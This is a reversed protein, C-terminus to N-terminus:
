GSGKMIITPNFTVVNIHYSCPTKCPATSVCLTTFLLRYVYNNSPYVRSAHILHNVSASVVPPAQEEEDSSQDSESASGSSSSESDSAAPQKFPKSPPETNKQASILLISLM